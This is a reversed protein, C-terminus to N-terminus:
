DRRLQIVETVGGVETPPTKQTIVINECCDGKVFTKYTPIIYGTFNKQM